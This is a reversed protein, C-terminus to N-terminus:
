KASRVELVSMNEFFDRCMMFDKSKANQIFDFTKLYNAFDNQHLLGETILKSTELNLDEFNYYKLFFQNKLQNVDNEQLNAIQVIFDKLVSNFIPKIKSLNKTEVKLFQVKVVDVQSYFKHLSIKVGNEWKENLKREFQTLLALFLNYESTEKSPTEFYFDVPDTFVTTPILKLPRPGADEAKIDTSFTRKLQVFRSANSVIPEIKELKNIEIHNAVQLEGFAAEALDKLNPINGIVVLSYRSSDLLKMYSEFIQSFEINSLINDKITFLNEIKTGSFITEMASCFLQTDLSNASLRYNYNETFILEDAQSATLETIFLAQNIASFIAEVDKKGCTIHINSNYIGTEVSISFDSSLKKTALINKINNAFYKITITELGPNEAQFSEGGNISINLSFGENKPSKKEVVLIGNELKFSNFANINEQYYSKESIPSIEETSNESKEDAFDLNKELLTYGSELILSKHKEFTKKNLLLFVFPETQFVSQIDALSLNKVNQLYNYFYDPGGYAWTSVLANFLNKTSLRSSIEQSLLTEKEREFETELIVNGFDISSLINEVQVSPSVEKNEMLSQIIVRSATGNEAFGSYIYTEDYIGTNENIVSKKFNWSNELALSALQLKGCVKIDSFAGNTPYQLILQNYDSSFNESILVYKKKSPNKVNQNETPISFISNEWSSFYKKALSLVREKSIGGTVFICSKEPTYFQNYIEFVCNRIEEIQAKSKQLIGSYLVTDQKWPSTFIVSDIKSNIYALENKQNELVQNLLTTYQNKIENDSFTPNQSAKAFISILNEFNNETTTGRFIASDSKLESTINIISTKKIESAIKENELFLNFALQPFGSNEETQVSFGAKSIFALEVLPNEFDELVYVQFGNELQFSYLNDTAKSYESTIQQNYLSKVSSVIKKANEVILPTSSSSSNQAFIFFSCFFCLCIIIIKSILKKNM